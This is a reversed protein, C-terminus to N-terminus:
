VALKTLRGRVFATPQILVLTGGDASLGGTSGDYAVAPSQYYGGLRGQGIVEGPLVALRAIETDASVGHLTFYRTSGDLSTVGAGGDIGIVPGGAGHATSAAALVLASMAALALKRM